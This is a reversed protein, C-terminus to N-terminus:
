PKLRCRAVHRLKSVYIIPFSFIILIWSWPWFLFPLCAHMSLLGSFVPNNLCSKPFILIWSFFVFDHQFLRKVVHFDMCIRPFAKPAIFSFFIIIYIYKKINQRLKRRWIYVLWKQKRFITVYRLWSKWCAQVVM